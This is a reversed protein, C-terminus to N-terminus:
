DSRQGLISRRRHGSSSNGLRERSGEMTGLWNNSGTERLAAQVTRPPLDCAKKQNPGDIDIALANVSCPVNCIGRFEDGAREFQCTV